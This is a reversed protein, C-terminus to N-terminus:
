NLSTVVRHTIVYRKSGRGRQVDIDLLQKVLDRRQDMHLATFRECLQQKVKATDEISVTEGPTFLGKRLDVVMAAVGVEARANDLQTQLAEQEEKLSRLQPAIEAREALGDAVLSLLDQRRAQVGSLASHIATTDIGEPEPILQAPGFTFAAAVADTVAADLDAQSAAVHKEGPVRVVNGSTKSSCRYSRHAGAKGGSTFSRLVAGCEGCRAIGSCLETKKPGPDQHNAPNRLIAVLNDFDEESLPADWVGTVGKLVAGKYVVRGANRPRLLMSRASNTGWGRGTTTPIGSANLDQTVKWLTAGALLSAAAKQIAAIETPVPTVRDTEWGFTRRGWNSEGKSARDELRARLRERKMDSEYQAMAGTITSVLGGSATSPDTIGSGITHWVAGAQVCAVQLGVLEANSRTLRDDAVALIVDFERRQLGALLALYGPREKGSWASIGDDTYRQVVDYGHEAAFAVLRSEQISTKDVKNDTESIRTYIAARRKSMTM